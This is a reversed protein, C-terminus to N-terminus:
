EDDEESGSVRAEDAKEKQDSKKNGILIRRLMEAAERGTGGGFLWTPDAIRVSSEQTDYKTSLSQRDKTGPPVYM